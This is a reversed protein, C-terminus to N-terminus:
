KWRWSISYERWSLCSRDWCTMPLPYVAKAANIRPFVFSWSSL